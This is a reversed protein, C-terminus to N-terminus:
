DENYPNKIKGSQVHYAIMESLMEKLAGHDRVSRASIYKQQCKLVKGEIKKPSAADKLVLQTQTGLKDIVIDGYNFMTQIIGTIEYSLGEVMHYDVRTAIKHFLGDQDVDIIGLNTILWVDAYWDFFHYIMFIAGIGWWISFIGIFQPFMFYLIGPLVFGFTTSKFAALKFVLAHRHAIHIIKEGDELYSSFLLHRLKM